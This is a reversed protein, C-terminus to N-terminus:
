KLNLFYDVRNGRSKKQSMLYSDQILDSMESKLDRMKKLNQNIKEDYQVIKSFIHVKKCLSSGSMDSLRRKRSKMPIKGTM